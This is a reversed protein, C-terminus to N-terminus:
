VHRPLGQDQRGRLAADADPLGIGLNLSLLAQQLASMKVLVPSEIRYGIIHYLGSSTM